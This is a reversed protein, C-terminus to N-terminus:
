AREQRLDPTSENIALPDGVLWRALLLSLTLPVVGNLVPLPLDLLLQGTRWAICLAAVLAFAVWGHPRTSQGIRKGVEPWLDLPPGAYTVNTLQRQLSTMAVVAERCRTCGTLHLEIQAAPVAPTEGDLSAMVGALVDDCEHNQPEKM